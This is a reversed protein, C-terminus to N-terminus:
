TTLHTVCKRLFVSSKLEIRPVPLYKTARQNLGITLQLSINLIGDRLSQRETLPIDSVLLKPSYNHQQSPGFLAM